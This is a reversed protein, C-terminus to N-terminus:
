DLLAVEAALQFVQYPNMYFKRLGWGCLNVNYNGQTYLLSQIFKPQIMYYNLLSKSNCRSTNYFLLLVLHHLRNVTNLWCNRSIQAVKKLTKGRKQLLRFPMSILAFIIVFICGSLSILQSFKLLILFSLLAFFCVTIVVKVDRAFM